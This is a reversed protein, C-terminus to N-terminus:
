DTEEAERQRAPVLPHARDLPFLDARAICAQVEPAVARGVDLRDVLGDLAPDGLQRLPHVPHHDVRRAAAQRFVHAGSQQEAPRRSDGVDGAVGGGQGAVKALEGLGVADLVEGEDVEEWLGAVHLHEHLEHRLLGPAPGRPGGAGAPRTPPHCGRGGEEIKTAEIASVETRSSRPAWPNTRSSPRSSETIITVPDIIPEPMKMTEALIARCTPEAPHSSAAHSTLPSSTIAAASEKPSNAAM